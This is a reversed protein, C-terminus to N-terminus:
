ASIASILTYPKPLWADFTADDILRNAYLVEAVLAFRGTIRHRLWMKPTLVGSEVMGMLTYPSFSCELAGARDICWQDLKGKLLFYM